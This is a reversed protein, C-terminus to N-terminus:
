SVRAGSGPRLWRGQHVFFAEALDDALAPGPQLSAGKAARRHAARRHAARHGYIQNATAEIAEGEVVDSGAASLGGPTEAAFLDPM